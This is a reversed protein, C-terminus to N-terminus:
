NGISVKMGLAEIFRQIQEIYERSVPRIEEWLYTRGLKEYKAKGWDHYPLLSLKEAKMRRGFEVVKRLNGKSDNYGPILPVRLWIRKNGAIRRANRLILQNSRGTGRRHQSSDMHKIDFLILDTYQLVKNFSDWSAYGCTDLATHLGEEKCAKLLSQAFEPQSLPEGGSITVGGGSNRYFSEDKRIEEMVKAVSLYKGSIVIAQTPCVDVCKLCMTCKTRDINIRKEQREITIANVPCVGECKGCIICNRDYTM